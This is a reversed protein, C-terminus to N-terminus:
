AQRQQQAHGASHLRLLVRVQVDARRRARVLAVRAGVVVSERYRERLGHGIVDLVHDDERVAAGAFVM